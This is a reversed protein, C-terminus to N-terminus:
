RDTGDYERVFAAVEEPTGGTNFHTNGYQFATADRKLAVLDRFLNLLSDSQDEM